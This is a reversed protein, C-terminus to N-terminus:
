EVKKKRNLISYISGPSRAIAHQYWLTETIEGPTLGQDHLLNILQLETDSLTKRKLSHILNSLDHLRRQRGSAYRFLPIENADIIAKQKAIRVSTDDYRSEVGLTELLKQVFEQNTTTAIGSELSKISAYGDGDALGQVFTARWEHPLTLIWDADISQKSKATSLDLGLLGKEMWAFFPSAACGWVMCEQKKGHRYRVDDAWRETNFGIQGM